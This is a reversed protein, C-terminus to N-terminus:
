SAKKYLGASLLWLGPLIVAAFIIEAPRSGQDVRGDSIAFLAAAVQAVAAILMAVTMRDAKLRAFIGGALAILPVLMFALNHPDDENGIIGVALNAWITFFGAAVAILGAALAAFNTAKRLALDAVTCAVLLMAGWVVFDSATWVVENTLQMALGPLVFLVAAGGWIIARWLNRGAVQQVRDMMREM